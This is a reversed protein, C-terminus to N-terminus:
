PNAAPPGSKDAPAAPPFSPTVELYYTEPAPKGTNQAEGPSAPVATRPATAPAAGIGSGLSTILGRDGVRLQRTGSPNGAFAAFAGEPTAVQLDAAVTISTRNNIHPILRARFTHRDGYTTMEVPANTTTEVIGSAVEEVDALPASGTGARKQAAASRYRIIRVTLRVPQPPVDLLAAVKRIATIADPAGQITVTNFVDDPTVSKISAPLLPPTPPATVAPAGTKAPAKDVQALFTVLASPKLHKLVFTEEILIPATPTQGGSAFAPTLCSLLAAITTLSRLRHPSFSAVPM